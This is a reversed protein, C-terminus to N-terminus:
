KTYIFQEEPIQMGNLVTTFNNFNDFNNELPIM